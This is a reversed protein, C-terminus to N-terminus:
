RLGRGWLGPQSGSGRRIAESSSRMAPAAYVLYGALRQFLGAEGPDIGLYHLQVQAQTWALTAVRDYAAIDRHKDILDVAEARSSAVMMWFAIRVTSGPAVRVRWRLAFIPDLVTGVTNSLARGDVAALATRVSRGRGLFRARDTEFQLKGVTGTDVVALHAAWVEPETPSRRRRSALLAGMSGLHETEVFLKSFAPHALVAAGPALVLVAYSTVDIFRDTAGSNVISVRRVEADDETSVLVDLGTTLTGDRRLIAARGELFTVDYEDPWVGSPQFGASWVEGNDVDRLLVYSGWDDCTTDERWRTVAVDQWRSYGSGAATLM